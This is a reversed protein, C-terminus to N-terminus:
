REAQLKERFWAAWRASAAAREEPTADRGVNGMSAGRMEALIELARVRLPWEVSELTNLMLSIM